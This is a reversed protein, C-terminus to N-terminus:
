RDKEVVKRQSKAPSDTLRLVDSFVSTASNADRNLKTIKVYPLIGIIM